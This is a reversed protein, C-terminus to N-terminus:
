EEEEPEHDREHENIFSHIYDERIQMFDKMSKVKNVPKKGDKKSEENIFDDFRMINELKRSEGLGLADAYNKPVTLMSKRSLPEGRYPLGEAGGKMTKGDYRMEVIHEEGTIPCSITIIEFLSADLERDGIEITYEFISNNDYYMDANLLTMGDGNNANRITMLIPHNIASLVNDRAVVGKINGLEYDIERIPHIAVGAITTDFTEYDRLIDLKNDTFYLSNGKNVWKYGKAKQLDTENFSVKMVEYRIRQARIKVKLVNM